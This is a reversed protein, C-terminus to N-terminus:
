YKIGLYQLEISIIKFKGKYKLNKYFDMLANQEDYGYCRTKRIEGDEIEYTVKYTDIRNSQM